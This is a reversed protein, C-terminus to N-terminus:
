LPSTLILSLVQIYQQDEVELIDEGKKFEIQAGLQELLDRGLLAKPSNPMSLFKHIGWQKRFKYKLPKCFYAKERQGTAGQVMIYDDGLPMSAQNLVSCTTGTDVLFEVEQKKELKM